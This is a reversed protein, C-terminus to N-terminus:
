KIEQQARHKTPLHAFQLHIKLPMKLTNGGVSISATNTQDM